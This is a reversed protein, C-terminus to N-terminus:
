IKFAIGFTIIQVKDFGLEAYAGVNPHFFYRSGISIGPWFYAETEGEAFAIVAGLTLLVYPDLRRARFNPHFAIRGAIPIYNLNVSYVEESFYGTILGLTFPLGMLPIAADLSATLPPCKWSENIGRGFGVGMNVM